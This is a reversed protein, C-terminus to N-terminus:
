FTCVCLCVEVDDAEGVDVDDPHVDEVASCSSLCEVVCVRVFCFLSVLSM